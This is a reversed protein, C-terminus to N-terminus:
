PVHWYRVGAAVHGTGDALATQLRYKAGANPDFLDWYGTAGTFALRSAGDPTFDIDTSSQRIKVTAGVDANNALKWVDGDSNDIGAVWTSLGTVVWYVKPDGASAGGVSATVQAHSAANTNDTHEARIEHSAGAVATTWKFANAALDGARVGGLSIGLNDAGISYLGSNQDSIPRLGPSAATGALFGIIGIGGFIREDTLTIAGLTTISAQALSVQWLVGDTQTLAPVGGGEVGALRAIRITQATWDKELVVRDIRTAGGPTPIALTSVADNEYWTGHVLAQGVAISVPSTAGSVALAGTGQDGALVCSRQWPSTTHGALLTRWIEAWEDASYPGADGTAIGTWPRSDETM